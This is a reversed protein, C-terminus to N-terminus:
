RSAKAKLAAIAKPYADAAIEEVSPANVYKLFKALDSNTEDILESIELAQDTSIPGGNNAPATEKYKSGDWLGAYIDAAVGLMKLAVSLADTIAMKYGEDSAHLGKSEKEVLMSGGIGPIPDSWAEGQKIYLHIHAFAFIQGDCGPENWVRVIEYKWGIGCPGFQETMAQYRWQPSIDTKGKLRGAAIQKLATKPPQKVKDWLALNNM